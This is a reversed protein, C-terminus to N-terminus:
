EILGNTRKESHEGSLRHWLAQVDEYAAECASVECSVVIEAALRIAEAFAMADVKMFEWAMNNVRGIEQESDETGEILDFRFQRLVDLGLQKHDNAANANQSKLLSGSQSSVFSVSPLETPKTLENSLGKQELRVKLRALASM